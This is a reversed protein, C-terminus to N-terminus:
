NSIKFYFNQWYLLGYLAVDVQNENTSSDLYLIIWM